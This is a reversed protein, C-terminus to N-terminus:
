MSEANIHLFALALTEVKWFASVSLSLSLPLSLFARILVIAAVAAM